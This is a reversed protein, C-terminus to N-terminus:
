QCYKQRENDFCDSMSGSKDLVLVLNLKKRKFDTMRLNSNLGVTMFFEIKNDTKNNDFNIQKSEAYCYSPYFLKSGQDKKEDMVMNMNEIHKRRKTDFYYEYLIGNYTISGVSPMINKEICERFNNVDKSGGVSLGITNNVNTSRSYSKISSTSGFSAPAWSYSSTSAGRYSATSSFGSLSALRSQMSSEYCDERDEYASSKMSMRPASDALGGLDLGIEDLVKQYLQDEADSDADLADDMCDNIIDQKMEMQQSEILNDMLFKQLEPLKIQNSVAQYSTNVNKLIKQDISQDNDMKASFTRLEAKLRIFKKETTQMRVIDKCLNKVAANQGQKALRKIENEAKKKERKTRNLERDLERISRNIIRKTERLKQKFSKKKDGFISSM